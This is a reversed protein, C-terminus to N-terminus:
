LKVCKTPWGGLRHNTVGRGDASMEQLIDDKRRRLTNLESRDFHAELFEELAKKPNLLYHAGDYSRCKGMVRVWEAADAAIRPISASLREFHHGLGHAAIFCRLYEDGAQAAGEPGLARYKETLCNIRDAIYHVVAWFYRGKNKMMLPRSDLSGQGRVLSMRNAFQDEVGSEGVLSPVNEASLFLKTYLEVRSELQYKASVPLSNELEKIESKVTKFENVALVWSRKFDGAAKGSPKGEFVAEIERVSMETVLGLEAMANILFGKGWDSETWLWLFAKKRDPAFRAAVIYELVADFLPFHEKYDAVTEADPKGRPARLPKRTLIIRVSDGSFDLRPRDAFMDVEWALRDRQNTYKLHKLVVSSVVAGVHKLIEDRHSPMLPKKYWDEVLAIISDYAVPQGFRRCMMGWADKDGYQNLQEDKTLFFIRSKAGSWFAGEIMDSLVREDVGVESQLDPLAGKIGERIQWALLAADSHLPLAGSADGAAGARQARRHADIERVYDAVAAKLDGKHEFHVFLDFADGYCHGTQSSVGIGEAKDSGSLSVWHSGYDRTAYTGSKQYPSRWDNSQGERAYGYAQLRDAITHERNFAGIVDCGGSARRRRKPLAERAEAAIRAKTEEDQRRQERRQIIPHDAGLLLPQGKGEECDYFDGKNPLYVLQGPRALARDPILVDASARELLDFFAEQTDTYDAGPLPEELFVLARWKKNEETASSTSYVLWATREGVVERITQTVEERPLNGEDVDLALCWFQGHEKQTAHGRADHGRYNSPIIWRAQMKDVSGPQRAMRLIDQPTIGDYDRGDHIRTDHKGVGTCLHVTM